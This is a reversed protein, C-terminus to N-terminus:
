IWRMYPLTNAPATRQRDRGFAFGKLHTRSRSRCRHQQHAVPWEVSDELTKMGYPEQQEDSPREKSNPDRANRVEMHPETGGVAFSSRKNSKPIIWWMAVRDPHQAMNMITSTRYIRSRYRVFDDGKEVLWKPADQQHEKAASYRNWSHQASGRYSNALKGRDARIFPVSAFVELRGDGAKLPAELVVNKSFGKTHAEAALPDSLRTKGQGGVRYLWGMAAATAATWGERRVVVSIVIRLVDFAARSVDHLFRSFSHVHNKPPLPASTTERETLHDVAADM